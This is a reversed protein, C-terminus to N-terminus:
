QKGPQLTHTQQTEGDPRQLVLVRRSEFVEKCTHLDPQVELMEGVVWFRQQRESPPLKERGQITGTGMEQMEEVSDVAASFRLCCLQAWIAAISKSSGHM